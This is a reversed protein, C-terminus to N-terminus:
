DCVMRGDLVENTCWAYVATIDVWPASEGYSGSPIGMSRMCCHLENYLEPIIWCPVVENKFHGPVGPLESAADLRDPSSHVNM